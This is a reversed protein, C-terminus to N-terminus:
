LLLMLLALLSPDFNETSPLKFKPLRRPSRNRPPSDEINSLDQDDIDLMAKVNIIGHGEANRGERINVTTNLMRSRVQAASLNPEKEMLLAASGAVMPTAMSTGSHAVYSTPGKNSLSYIDVGPAVIDPKTLGSPTPGRSSFSAVFDDEYTHTKNDDVAGVTLVDPSIGPSNITGANPGSNGAATCVLIGQQSARAAAKALPDERYSKEAPAGLSMNLIRINYRDKNDIVWQIGALIDSTSGSGNGDLVKVGIINAEPAIGKYKSQSYGNGAAIGSVHTGHGDDDYPSNRANVMDKFAVIRNTPRTLDYHPYVGTDLVAIGVGKGTYGLDNIRHAVIALTANDMCKFVKADHNIFQIMHHAAIDDISTAPINAAVANILPYKYKITGGAQEICEEIDEHRNESYVITPIIDKTGASMRRVVVPHVFKARIQQIRKDVKNQTRNRRVAFWEMCYIRM